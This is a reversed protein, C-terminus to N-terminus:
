FQVDMCTSPCICLVGVMGGLRGGPATRPRPSPFWTVPWWNGLKNGEWPTPVNTTPNVDKARTGTEQPKGSTEMEGGGCLERPPLRAAHNASWVNM